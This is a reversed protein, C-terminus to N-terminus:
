VNALEKELAEALANVEDASRRETVAVLLCNDLDPFFRGLAPGALFGRKALGSVLREAGIPTRIVIEKFRPGACAIEVGPVESLRRAAAETRQLCLEGLRRLGNPGLWALHIAAAIAM